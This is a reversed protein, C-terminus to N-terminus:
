STHTLVFFPCRSSELSVDHLWQLPGTINHYALKESSLSWHHEKFTAPLHYPQLSDLTSYGVTVQINLLRLQTGCVLALMSVACDSSGALPSVQWPGCSASSVRQREKFANELLSGSCLHPNDVGGSELRHVALVHFRHSCLSGESLESRRPRILLIENLDNVVTLLPIGWRSEYAPLFSSDAPLTSAKLPECWTFSRICGKRFALSESQGPDELQPQLEHNVIAVRTWQKQPGVAEWLSLLLNSTLVALVSRRFKGVGAPSWALRVM